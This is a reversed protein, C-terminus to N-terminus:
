DHGNRRKMHARKPDPWAAFLEGVTCNLVAVLLPLKDFRPNGNGTEWKAVCQQSVGIIQALERQSLGIKERCRKINNM